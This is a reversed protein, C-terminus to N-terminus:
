WGVMFRLFMYTAAFSLFLLAAVNLGITLGRRRCEKRVEAPHCFHGRYPM